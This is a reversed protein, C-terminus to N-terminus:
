RCVANDAHHACIRNIQYPSHDSLKVILINDKVDVAGAQPWSPMASAYEAVLAEEEVKPGRYDWVGMSFFLSAIRHANGMEMTYFSAGIMDRRSFIPSHPTERYGVLVVPYQAGQRKPPLRHWERGLRDMLLVSLERDTKWQMASSFAYRNNAVIFNYVCAIVLVSLLVRVVHGSNRAVVFVLGALVWPVALMTRPPMFGGGMLCLSVSAVLAALLALLGLIRVAYRRHVAFVVLLACLLLSVYFLLKLSWLDYLYIKQSGALYELAVQFTKEIAVSWYAWGSKIQVFGSLYDSFPSKLYHMFLKSVAWYLSFALVLVFSFVLSKKVWAGFGWTNEKAVVQALVYFGFLTAILPALAQYIGLAFMWSLVAVLGGRWSWRSLGLLGLGVLGYGIGIGYGLTNFYLSFYIVPCAVAIPAALYDAVGRENSLANLICLTGVVLGLLALLLPVFLMVPDPLLLWSLVYMGWRGQGVWHPKAGFSQSHFEADISLFFQFLAAGYAVVAVGLIYAILRRNRAFFLLMGSIGAAAYLWQDARKFREIWVHM